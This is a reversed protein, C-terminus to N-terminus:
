ELTAANCSLLTHSEQLDQTYVPVRIHPVRAFTWTSWLHPTGAASGCSWVPDGFVLSSRWFVRRSEQLFRGNSWHQLTVSLSHIATKFTLDQTYIPVRIHPVRAPQGSTPPAQLQVAPSGSQQGPTHVTFMCVLLVFVFFFFTPCVNPM